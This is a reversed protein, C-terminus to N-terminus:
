LRFRDRPDGTAAEGEPLPPRLSERLRDLRFPAFGAPLRDLKELALAFLREAPARSRRTLHVCGAALQILAQLFVRDDGSCDNWLREWEEHAQFFRGARFEALGKEFRPDAAGRFTV